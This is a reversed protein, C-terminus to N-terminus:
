SLRAQSEVSAKMKSFIRAIEDHSVGRARQSEYFEPTIGPIDMFSSEGSRNVGSSPQVVNARTFTSAEDIKIGALKLGTELAIEKSTGSEVLKSYHEGALDIKEKNLIEWAKEKFVKDFEAKTMVEPEAQLAEEEKVKEQKEQESKLFSQLQNSLQEIQAKQEKITPLLVENVERTSAAYLEDATPGKKPAVQANSNDPNMIPGQGFVERSQQNELTSSAM